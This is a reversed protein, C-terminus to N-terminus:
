KNEPLIALQYYKDVAGDHYIWVRKGGANVVKSDDPAIYNADGQKRWLPNEKAIPAQPKPYKAM